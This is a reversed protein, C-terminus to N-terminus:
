RRRHTFPSSPHPDDMDEFGDTTGDVAEVDLAADSDDTRDAAIDGTFGLILMLSISWLREDAGDEFGGDSVDDGEIHFYYWSVAV